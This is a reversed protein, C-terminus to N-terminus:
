SQDSLRRDMKQELLKVTEPKVSVHKVWKAKTTLVTYSLPESENNLTLHLQETMDSEKLGWPSYLRGPEEGM